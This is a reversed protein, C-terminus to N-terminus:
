TRSGFAGVGSAILALVSAAVLIGAPYIQQKTIMPGMFRGVLLLAIVGAAIYGVKPNTKALTVFGIVLVGAAVGAILSPLSHKNIFGALGFVINLIAYAFLVPNIWSM